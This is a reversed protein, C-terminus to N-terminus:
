GSDPVARDAAARCIALFDDETLSAGGILGGDIDPQGLLDAANDPKMSGGYLIRCRAAIDVDHAALRRRILSHVEQAQAPTATLGTGIAWVPEYAIVGRLFAGIGCQGIISDLQGLVVADTRCNERQERSEGVCVIPVLDRSLAANVKAAIRADNEGFLVRRESHGLITHSGGADRVMDASVQGTYAGQEHEDIDQAGTAIISGSVAESVRHLLTSPPCLLVDIGALPAVGSVLDRCLGLAMPQNGNMKWNGAILPKRMGKPRDFLPQITGAPRM